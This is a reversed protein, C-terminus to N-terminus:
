FFATVSSANTQHSLTRVNVVITGEMATWTLRVNVCGKKQMASLHRKMPWVISVIEGFRIETNVLSMAFKSEPRLGKADVAKRGSM